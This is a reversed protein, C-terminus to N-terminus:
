FIVAFGTSEPTPCNGQEAWKIYPPSFLSNNVSPFLLPMVYVLCIPNIKQWSVIRIPILNSKTRSPNIWKWKVDHIRPSLQPTIVALRRELLRSCYGTKSPLVRSACIFHAFTDTVGRNMDCSTESRAASAEIFIVLKDRVSQQRIKSPRWPSRPSPGNLPFTALYCLHTPDLHRLFLLATINWVYM